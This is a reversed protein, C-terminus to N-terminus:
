IYKEIFNKTERNIEDVIKPFYRYNHDCELEYFRKQEPISDFIKRVKEISNNSDNKGYFMMKAKFCKKLEEIGSYKKGDEFYSMPIEFRRQKATKEIGPPLDRLSVYIGNKIESSAPIEPIGFSSNVTIIGEVFPNNSGVINAVLGGRSHGFLITERNGFYEILESVSQIYNTTTYLNIDGPSDWTFPPDISISYYGLNALCDLHSDFCEYDKTDLRGPLIIALKSSSSDGRENVAVEFSKTKIIRM